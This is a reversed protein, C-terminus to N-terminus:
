SAVVEDSTPDPDLAEDLDEWYSNPAARGLGFEDFSFEQAEESLARAAKEIKRFRDVEANGAPENKLRIALSSAIDEALEARQETARLRRGVEAAAAVVLEDTVNNQDGLLYAAIRGMMNGRELEAVRMKDSLNKAAEQAQLLADKAVDLEHSLAKLQRQSFMPEIFHNGILTQGDYPRLSRPLEGGYYYRDDDVHKWRWAFPEHEANM